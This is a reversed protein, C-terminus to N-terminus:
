DAGGRPLFGILGMRSAVFIATWVAAAIGAAWLAKRGLNARIPAGREAGPVHDISQESASHAGIPLVAFFALWWLLLYIGVGLLSVM